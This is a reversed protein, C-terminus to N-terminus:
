TKPQAHVHGAHRYGRLEVPVLNLKGHRVGREAIIGAAFERVRRTAGRLILTELCNDHDLHVHMTSLALDHHQHQAQTLRRALEHEHHNYIYTLSAVCHRAEDREVRDEELARRILDRVAESRNEYQERAMLADFQAALEDDLSITVRQM